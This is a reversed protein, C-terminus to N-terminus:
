PGPSLALFVKIGPARTWGMENTAQRTMVAGGGQFPDRPQLRM